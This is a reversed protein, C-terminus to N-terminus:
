KPPDKTEKGLYFEQLFKSKNKTIEQEHNNVCYFSTLKFGAIPDGLLMKQVELEDADPAVMRSYIDRAVGYDHDMTQPDTSASRAKFAQAIKYKFQM